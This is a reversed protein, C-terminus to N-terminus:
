KENLKLFFNKSEFLINFVYKDRLHCMLWLRNEQLFADWGRCYGVSLMSCEEGTGGSLVRVVVVGAVIEGEEVRLAM